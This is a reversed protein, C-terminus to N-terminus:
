NRRVWARWSAAPNPLSAQSAAKLPMTAGTGLVAAAVLVAGAIKLKSVCDLLQWEALGALSGPQLLREIQQQATRYPPRVM